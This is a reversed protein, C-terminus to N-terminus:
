QAPANLLAVAATTLDAALGANAWVADRDGHVLAAERKALVSGILESMFAMRRRLVDPALPTTRRIHEIIRQYGAEGVGAAVAEFLDLRSNRVAVMFRIFSDEGKPHTSLSLQSRVLIDVLTALDPEPGAQEAEKLLRIRREDIRTLGNSLLERILDDKSGFYYHMAGGNRVGAAKLIDRVGVGDVGREAILRRATLLMLDRTEPASRTM